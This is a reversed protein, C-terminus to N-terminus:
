FGFGRGTVACVLFYVNVLNLIVATVIGNRLYRQVTLRAMVESAEHARAQKGASWYTAASFVLCLVPLLFVTTSTGTRTAKGATDFATAIQDGLGPFVAAAVVLPLVALVVLAVSMLGATKGYTKGYGFM